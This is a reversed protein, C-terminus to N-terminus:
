NRRPGAGAGARGCRPLPGYGCGCFPGCGPPPFQRRGRSGASLCGKPGSPRGEESSQRASPASPASPGFSPWPGAYLPRCLGPLCRVCPGCACASACPPARPGCPPGPPGLAPLCPAPLAARPSRLASPSRYENLHTKKPEKILRLISTLLGRLSCRRGSSNYHCNACSGNLFGYVSVCETFPGNGRDCHRCPFENVEGAVQAAVAEKNVVRAWNIESAEPRLVPERRIAMEVLECLVNSAGIFPVRRATLAIVGGRVGESGNEPGSPPPEAAGNEPATSVAAASVPGPGVDEDAAPPPAPAESAPPPTNVATFAM